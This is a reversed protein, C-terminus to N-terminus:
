AEGPFYLFVPADNEIEIQGSAENSLGLSRLPLLWTLVKIPYAVNGWLKVRCKKLTGLSFVGQHHFRWHGQGLFHAEPKGDPGYFLIRSEPHDELWALAEGWVFMEHDKRGGSFGWLHVTAAQTSRLIELAAAFDSTDKEPALKLSLTSREASGGSDGDGVWVDSSKCHLAGGDVALVPHLALSDPLIPGLPGVLVWESKESLEKSLKM